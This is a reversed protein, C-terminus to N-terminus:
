PGAPRVDRCCRFGLHYNRHSSAALVRSGHWYPARWRCWDQHAYIRDFVFWSGKMETHGLEESGRSAMQAPTLPLNM